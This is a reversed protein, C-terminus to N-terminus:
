SGATEGKEAKESAEAVSEDAPWLGRREERERELAEWDLGAREEIRALLIGAAISAVGMEWCAVNWWRALDDGGENGARKAYQGPRLAVLDAYVQFVQEEIAAL